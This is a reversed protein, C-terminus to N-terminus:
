ESATTLLQSFIKNFRSKTFQKTKNQDPDSWQIKSDDSDWESISIIIEKTKKDGREFKDRLHKWVNRPKHPKNNQSVEKINTILLNHLSHHNKIVGEKIEINATKHKNSSTQMVGINELKSITQQPLQKELTKAFEYVENPVFFLDQKTFIKKLAIYRKDYGNLTEKKTAQFYLRNKQQRQNVERAERIMNDDRLQKINEIYLKELGSYRKTAYEACEDITEKPLPPEIKGSVSLLASFKDQESPLSLDTVTVSLYAGFKGKVAYELIDNESYQIDRQVYKNFYQVVQEIKYPSPNTPRDLIKEKNSEILFNHLLEFILCMEMNKHLENISYFLKIKGVLEERVESPLAVKITENEKKEELWEYFIKVEISDSRFKGEIEQLFEDNKEKEKLNLNVLIENKNDNEVSALLYVRQEIFIYTTLLATLLYKSLRQPKKNFANFANVEKVVDLKQLIEKLLPCYLNMFELLELLEAQHLSAESLLNDKNEVFTKFKNDFAVRLKNINIIERNTIETGLNNVVTKEIETDTLMDFQSSEGPHNEIKELTKDDRKIYINFFNNCDLALKIFDRNEYDLHKFYKTAENITLYIEKDSKTPKANEINNKQSADKEEKKILEEFPPALMRLDPLHEQYESLQLKYLRLFKEKAIGLLESPIEGGDFLYKNIYKLPFWRFTLMWFEVDPIQWSKIIEYTEEAKRYDDPFIPTTMRLIRINKPNLGSMVCAAELVTWTDKMLWTSYEIIFKHESM